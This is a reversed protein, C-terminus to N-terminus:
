DDRSRRPGRSGGGGGGGGDRGRGRGGGGGGRGGRDDGDRGRGRGGGRGGRDDRDRGGRGRGGRDDRDRGRGGRDDRGRGRGGDRGGRGRGRDDRDRDQRTHGTTDVKGIAGGAFSSSSAVTTVAAYKVDRLREGEVQRVSNRLGPCIGLVRDFARRANMAKAGDFPFLRCQEPRVAYVTCGPMDRDYFVCYGDAKAKLRRRDGWKTIYRAEFEDTPMDFRRAIREMEAVDLWVPNQESVCCNGCRTCEFLDRIRQAMGGGLRAPMEDPLAEITATTPEPGRPPARRPEDDADDDDADEELESFRGAGEADTGTADFDDSPDVGEVDPEGTWETPATGDAPETDTNQDNEDLRSTEDPM